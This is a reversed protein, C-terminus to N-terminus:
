AKHAACAAALVAYERAGVADYTLDAVRAQLTAPEPPDDLTAALAAALADAQGPPVLRGADGVLDPIGGVATAVVPVGLALAEVLITPTGERDSALVLADAAAVWDPVKEHPQAGVWQVRQTLGLRRAQDALQPALEGGGVLALRVGPLKALAGLIVDVRKIHRLAGIFVVLRDPGLGLRARAETRPRPHFLQPDYGCAIVEPQGVPLGMAVMKRGLDASVVVLRDTHALAWAVQKLRAPVACHQHVDSGHAVLVLPLGLAQAVKAAAVGDPYLFHGLVVDFPEAEHRARAERLLSHQIQQPRRDRAVRPLATFPVCALELDDGPALPPSPARGVLGALPFTQQPLLLTVQAHRALARLRDPMFAAHHPAAATPYLLTIALVRM